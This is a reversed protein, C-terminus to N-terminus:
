GLVGSIFGLIFLGVWITVVALIIGGAIALM